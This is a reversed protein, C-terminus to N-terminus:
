PGQDTKILGTDQQPTYNVELYCQNAHHYAEYQEMFSELLGENFNDSNICHFLPWLVGHCFQM